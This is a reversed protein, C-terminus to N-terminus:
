AGYFLVGMATFKWSVQIRFIESAWGRIQGIWFVVALILAETLLLVILARNDFRVPPLEVNMLRQVIVRISGVLPLGFAVLAILCFEAPASLNRMFSKM